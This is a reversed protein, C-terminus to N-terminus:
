GAEEADPVIEEKFGFGRTNDIMRVWTPSIRYFRVKAMAAALETIFPFKAGYVRKAKKVDAEAVMEECVGEIQLGQLTRWDDGQGHITVAVRPNLRINEAHRTKPDSVFYLDFEASAYFLSCAFPVGGSETALTLTNHSALYALSWERREKNM